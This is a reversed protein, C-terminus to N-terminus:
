ESKGWGQAKIEVAQETNTIMYRGESADCVHGIVTVDPSFKVDDYHKQDLTFLLEYDEGGNLAAVTPVIDFEEAMQIATPDVPFRESFLKCGVGSQQCLHLIDSALGDSVDIMSTPKIDKDAFFEILDKRAEPKLYRQLIYDYGGLQPQMNPNTKFVEQERKLLLLGLYASGLDGSVCILDNVKAGNRFVVKDKEVEGVVSVSITMGTMSPATDGGMLDVNYKECALKIGDYLEEMARVSFKQSIAVSVTMQKPTANMAYVDSFNVVAAKYGLHKLPSYMLDFHIGEVLLDTTLVTQKGKHDMLAADDGVGLISSDNKLKIDKTLHRILGFEGLESIEVVQKKEEAM